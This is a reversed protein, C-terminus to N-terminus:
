PLSLLQELVGELVYDGTSECAHHRATFIVTKEGAGFEACPVSRGKKTKCLEKIEIAHAQMLRYFRDMDYLM